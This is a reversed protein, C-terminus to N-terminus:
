KGYKVNSEFNLKLPAVLEAYAEGEKKGKAKKYDSVKCGIEKFYNYIQKEEMKLSKALITYDVKYNSLMLALILIYYINKLVLIPTKVHKDREGLHFSGEAFRELFLNVFYLDIETQKSIIEPSYKLVKPLQYFKIMYDLFLASKIKFPVNAMGQKAKAFRQFLTHTFESFRHKNAALLQPNSYMSMILDINLQEM